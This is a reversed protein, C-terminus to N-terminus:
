SEKEITEDCFPCKTENIDIENMCFPCEKTKKEPKEDLFKLCHQCKVAVSKIEKWCHPCIKYGKKM